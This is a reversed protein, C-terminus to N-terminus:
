DNQLIAGAAESGNPFFCADIKLKYTNPSPPNWRVDKPEANYQAEKFNVALAQISFDTHAPPVM